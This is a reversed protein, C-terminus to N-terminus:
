KGMGKEIEKLIQTRLKPKSKEKKKLATYKEPECHMFLVIRQYEYYDQYTDVGNRIRWVARSIHALVIADNIDYSEYILGWHERVGQRVKDKLADGSVRTKGKPNDKTKKEGEWESVNVFDKVSGPLPSIFIGNKCVREAALRAGWNNGSSAKNTDRANLAFWEVAVADTPRLHRMVEDHLTMVKRETSGGKTGTLVKATLVEGNGDLAAFGTNTAPDLGVFRIDTM